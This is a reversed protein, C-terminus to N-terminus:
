GVSREGDRLCVSLLLKKAGQLMRFLRCGRRALLSFFGVTAVLLIFFFLFM